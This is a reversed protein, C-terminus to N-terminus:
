TSCFLKLNGHRRLQTCNDFNWQTVTCTWFLVLRTDFSSQIKRSLTVYTSCFFEINAEVTTLLQRFNGIERLLQFFLGREQVVTFTLTVVSRVFLFRINKKGHLIDMMFRYRSIKKSFRSNLPCDNTGSRWLSKTVAFGIVKWLSPSQDDKRFHSPIEPWLESNMCTMLPFFATDHSFIAVSISTFRYRFWLPTIGFHSRFAVSIIYRFSISIGVFRM